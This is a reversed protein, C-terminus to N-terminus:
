VFLLWISWFGEHRRPTIGFSCMDGLCALKIVSICRKNNDMSTEPCLSLLCVVVCQRAHPAPFRHFVFVWGHVCVCVCFLYFFSFFIYVCYMWGKGSFLWGCDFVFASSEWTGAAKLVYQFCILWFLCVCGVSAFRMCEDSVVMLALFPLKTTHTYLTYLNKVLDYREM